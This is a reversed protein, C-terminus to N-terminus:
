EPPLSDEAAQGIEGILKRLKEETDLGHASRTESQIEDLIQQAETPTIELDKLGALKTVDELSM